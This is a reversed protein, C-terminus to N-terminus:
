SEMRTQRPLPLEVTFVTGRGPTSDVLIRGGHSEVVWRAIALGLGSGRTPRGHILLQAAKGRYFRDFIHPLDEAAIGVGTDVVIVQVLDDGRALKVQIRGNPPTYRSANEVLESFLRRLREEDGEIEVPEFPGADLDLGRQRARQLWVDAVDSLVLDLRIARRSIQNYEDAEALLLLSSFTTALGSFESAIDELTDRLEGPDDTGRRLVELNGALTTLPTGIEHAIDSVFRRQRALTEEVRANAILLSELARNLQHILPLALAPLPAAWPASWVSAATLAGAGLLAVYQVLSQRGLAVVCENLRRGQTVAIVGALVFIALSGYVLGAVLAAEAAPATALPPLTPTWFQEYALASGCVVLLHQGYTFLVNFWPRRLKLTYVLTGTASAAGAISPPLLLIAAFEAATGLSMKQNRDLKVPFLGALAVAVFVVIAAPAIPIRGGLLVLPWDRRLLALEIATGLTPIVLVYSWALRSFTPEALIGVKVASPSASM